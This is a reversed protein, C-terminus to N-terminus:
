QRWNYLQTIEAPTLARNFILADDILGSFYVAGDRSGIRITGNTASIATTVHSSASAGDKYFVVNTGSLTIAVHTWNTGGFAAASDVNLGLPRVFRMNNGTGVWALNLRDVSAPNDIACVYGVTSAASAKVWAAITFNAVPPFNTRSISSSGNLSLAQGNIGAGYAETGAWTANYGGASDLANSDAKYWAVPGLTLPNFSQGFMQAFMQGHSVAALMVAAAILISRKM